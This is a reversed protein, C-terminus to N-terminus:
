GAARALRRAISSLPKFMEHAADPESFGNAAYFARASEVSLLRV